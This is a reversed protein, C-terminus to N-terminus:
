PRVHKGCYPCFKFPGRSERIEEGHAWLFVSMSELQGILWIYDDCSCVTDVSITDGKTKKNMM